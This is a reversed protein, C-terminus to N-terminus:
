IEIFLSAMYCDNLQTLECMSIVYVKQATWGLGTM